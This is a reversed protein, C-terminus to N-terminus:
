ASTNFLMNSIMTLMIFLQLRLTQGKPLLQVYTFRKYQSPLDRLGSFQPCPAPLFFPSGTPARGM